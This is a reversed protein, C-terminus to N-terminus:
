IILVIHNSHNQILYFPSHTSAVGKQEKLRTNRQGLACFVASCVRRMSWNVIAYYEDRFM